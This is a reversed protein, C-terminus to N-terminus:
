RNNNVGRSYPRHNLQDANKAEPVGWFQIKLPFGPFTVKLFNNKSAQFNISKPSDGM